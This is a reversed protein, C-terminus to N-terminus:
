SDAVTPKLKVPKAKDLGFRNLRLHNPPKWVQVLGSGLGTLDLRNPGFQNPKAQAM